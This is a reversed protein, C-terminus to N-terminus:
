GRKQRKRSSPKQGGAGCSKIWEQSFCNILIGMNRLYPEMQQLCSQIGEIQASLTRLLKLSEQIFYHSESSTFASPALATNPQKTLSRQSLKGNFIARLRKEQAIPVRSIVLPQLKSSYIDQSNATLGPKLPQKTFFPHHKKLSTPM